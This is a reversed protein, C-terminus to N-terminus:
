SPEMWAAASMSLMELEFVGVANAGSYNTATMAIYCGASTGNVLSVTLVSATNQTRETVEAGVATEITMAGAGSIAVTFNKIGYTESRTGASFDSQDAILYYKLRFRAGTSLAAIKFINATVTLNGLIKKSERLAFTGSKNGAIYYTSFFRKNDNTNQLSGVDIISGIYDHMDTNSTGSTFNQAKCGLFIAKGNLGNDTYVNHDSWVSSFVAHGTLGTLGFSAANSSGILRLPGVEIGSQVDPTGTKVFAGAEWNVHNASTDTNDSNGTLRFGLLQHGRGVSDATSGGDSYKAFGVTNGWPSGSPNKVNINLNINSHTAATLDGWQVGIRPAAPQNATSSRDNFNVYVTDCGYGDYSKILSTVQQNVSQVNLTNNKVGYIFFNRGCTDADINLDVDDGSFQGTYPYFTGSAKIRGRIQRSSYSAPDTYLKTPNLGILGGTMDLDVECGVGGESLKFYTLGRTSVATSTTVAIQSTFRGKLKRNSCAIFEFMTSQQTGTYTNGDTILSQSFDLEISSLSTFTIWSSGVTPLVKYNKGPTGRLIGGGVTQIRTAASVFAASDDTVGDGVAGFDEPSIAQERLKAQATTAVAGTGTAIHGVLASGSSVGLDASDYKTAIATQIATFETNIDVGKIVKAPNGTILADKAAFDTAKTYDSM